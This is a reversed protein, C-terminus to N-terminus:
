GPRASAALPAAHETRRIWFSSSVYRHVPPDWAPFARLFADAHQKMLLELSLLVEFERNFALFGQLLYSETWFMRFAPNKFYVAPYEFPMPIDHFHVIVGPALRPLVELVLFTVDGGTKVAHGSDVFLVDGSGLGAFFSPDLLEVRERVLRTLGPLGGAVVPGPYPDVILYEAARGGEAANARLAAAHVLSSNGSGIEIV